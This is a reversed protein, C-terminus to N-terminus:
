KKLNKPNISEFYNTTIMNFIETFNIIFSSIYNIDTNIFPFIRHFRKCFLVVGRGDM